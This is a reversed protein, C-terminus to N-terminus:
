LRAEVAAVADAGGSILGLGRALEQDARPLEPPVLSGHHTRDLETLLTVAETIRQQATRASQYASSLRSSVEALAARVEALSGAMPETM